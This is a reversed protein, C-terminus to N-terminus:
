IQEYDRGKRYNKFSLYPLDLFPCAQLSLFPFFPNPLMHLSHLPAHVLLFQYPFPKVKCYTSPPNPPIYYEYFSGYPPFSIQHPSPSSYSFYSLSKLVNVWCVFWLYEVLNAHHLVPQYNVHNISPGEKHLVWPLDVKWLRSSEEQTCCPYYRSFIRQFNENNNWM